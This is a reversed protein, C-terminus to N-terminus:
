NEHTNDVGKYIETIDNDQHSRFFNVIWNVLTLSSFGIAFSIANATNDDTPLGFYNVAVPTFIIGMSLSSTAIAVGAFYPGKKEINKPIFASGSVIGGALSALASIAKSSTYWEASM